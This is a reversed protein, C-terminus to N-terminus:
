RAAGLAPHGCRTFHLPHSHSTLTSTTFRSLDVQDINVTESVMPQGPSGSIIVVRERAVWGQDLLAKLAKM